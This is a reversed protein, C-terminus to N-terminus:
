WNQRGAWGLWFPLPYLCLKFLMRLVEEVDSSQIEKRNNKIVYAITSSFIENVSRTIQADIQDTNMPAQKLFNVIESSKNYVEESLKNEIFQIMSPTLIIQDKEM